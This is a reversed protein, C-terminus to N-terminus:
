NHPWTGPTHPAGPPKNYAKIREEHIGSSLRKGTQTTCRNGPQAKCWPCKAQEEKRKSSTSPLGSVLKVFDAVDGQQMMISIDRETYDM